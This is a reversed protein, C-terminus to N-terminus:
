KVWRADPRRYKFAQPLKWKTASFAVRRKEYKNTRGFLWPVISYLVTRNKLLFPEFVVCGRTSLFHLVRHEILFMLKKLMVHLAAFFRPVYPVDPYDRDDAAIERAVQSCHWRFNRFTSIWPLQHLLYYTTHHSIM